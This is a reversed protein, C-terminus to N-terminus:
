LSDKHHEYNDVVCKIQGFLKKYHKRMANVQAEHRANLEAVMKEQSVAMESIRLELLKAYEAVQEMEEKYRDRDRVIYKLVAELPVDPNSIKRINKEM